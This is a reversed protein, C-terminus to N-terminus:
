ECVFAGTRGRVVFTGPTMSRENFRVACTTSSMRGPVLRKPSTSIRPVPSTTLPSLHTPSCCRLPMLQRSHLRVQRFATRLQDAGNELSFAKTSPDRMKGVPRPADSRRSSWPVFPECTTRAMPSWWADGVPVSCEDCSRHKGNSPRERPVAHTSRARRRIGFRHVASSLRRRERTRPRSPRPSLCGARSIAGLSMSAATLLRSIAGNGCGVDLVRATSGPRLGAVELVWAVLDFRPQQDEWLRQRARLNADTLYQTPPNLSVDM